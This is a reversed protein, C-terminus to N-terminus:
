RSEIVQRDRGWLRFVILYTLYGLLGLQITPTLGVGLFPILPMSTAYAWRGTELAWLEIGIALVAGFVVILWPRAKLYANYFFPLTIGLIFIADALTAHFLIANTISGGQYNTYLVVHAHEWVLNLGFSIAFLLAAIRAM